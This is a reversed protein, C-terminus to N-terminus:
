TEGSVNLPTSKGVASTSAIPKCIDRNDESGSGPATLGRKFKM